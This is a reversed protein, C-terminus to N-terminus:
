DTRCYYFKEVSRFNKEIVSEPGIRKRLGLTPNILELERRRRTGRECRFGVRVLRLPILIASNREAKRAISVYLSVAIHKRVIRRGNRIIHIQAGLVRDRVGIEFIPDMKEMDLGQPVANPSTRRMIGHLYIGTRRGVELDINRRRAVSRVLLWDNLECRGIRKRADIMILHLDYRKGLAIGGRKEAFRDTRVDNRRETGAVIIHDDAGVVFRM